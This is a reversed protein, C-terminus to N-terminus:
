QLTDSNRSYFYVQDSLVEDVPVQTQNIEEVMRMLMDKSLDQHYPVLIVEHISSPLIFLDAQIRNSFDKLVNEYLFCTAGNITQSNSLVFMKNDGYKEPKLTNWEGLDELTNEADASDQTLMDEIVEEMSRIVPPFIRVTNRAAVELLDQKTIKWLELHHNTIRITGIGEKDNHVLCHFSIALDLYRIHPITKMLQKNKTYNVLRYVISSEMEKFSYDLVGESIPLSCSHYIECLRKAVEDMSVGSIFAEYYPKIYINPTFNKGEKQMVLSDLELSNNKVVKFIRVSYEEGMMESVLKTLSTAFASYESVSEKLIESM